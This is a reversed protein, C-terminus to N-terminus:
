ILNELAELDEQDQLLDEADTIAGDVETGEEEEEGAMDASVEQDVLVTIVTIAMRAKPTNQTQHPAEPGRKLAVATIDTVVVAEPDVLAMIISKVKPTSQTLQVTVLDTLPGRTPAM